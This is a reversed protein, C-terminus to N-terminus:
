AYGLAVAVLGGLVLTAIAAAPALVAVWKWHLDGLVFGGGGVIGAAVLLNAALKQVDPNMGLIRAVMASVLALVVLASVFAVLANRLRHRRPPEDDIRAGPPSYPESM